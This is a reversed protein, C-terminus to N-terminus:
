LSFLKRELLNEKVIRSLHAGLPFVAAADDRGFFNDEDPFQDRCVRSAASSCEGGLQAFGPLPSLGIARQAVHDAATQQQHQFSGALDM